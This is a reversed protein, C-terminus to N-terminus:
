DAIESALIVWGDATAVLLKWDGVADIDNDTASGGVTESGDPTIVVANTGATNLVRLRRGLVEGLPPLTLAFGATTTDTLVTTEETAFNAATLETAEDAEVVSAAVAAGSDASAPALKVLGTEAEEAQASWAFGLFFRGSARQATMVDAAGDWFLAVGAAWEEDDPTALEHVREEVDVAGSGGNAIDVTAIGAGVPTEVPEGSVVDSGTGNTWAITSGHVRFTTAM